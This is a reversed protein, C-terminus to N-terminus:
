LAARQAQGREYVGFGIHLPITAPSSSV